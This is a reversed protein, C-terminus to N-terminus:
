SYGFNTIERFLMEFPLLFESYETAKPPIAFNLGEWLVSIENDNLKYCSFNFIVKDPDQFTDSNKLHQDFIRSMKQKWFLALKLSKQIIDRIKTTSGVYM